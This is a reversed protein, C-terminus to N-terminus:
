PLWVARYYMAPGNTLPNPLVLNFGTTTITNTSVPTWTGSTLSSTKQIVYVTGTTGTIGFGGNATIMMKPNSVTYSASYSTVQNPLVAVAQNGPSNWGPIPNFLVTVNTSTVARIYNTASGYASDGSLKWGAGAARASPPGLQFELYGPSSASIAQNATITVVGGGPHNTGNDGVTAANTILNVVASDIARVASAYPTVGNYLTGVYVGAPYYYGNYQAYVPGGSNGPYSLFWNATYIQQDTVPDTALALPYPQPQTQYMEGPVISSNGFESGDVPYGVVMKLSNGTLWPNPSADSPLYGGYGGGAVPSLFYLAAVDYNRSQPSSQNVGLGGLLDNTRQSAYGSLVYWGRASQPEPTSVGTEQQFYWFIQSVYGLTQDNFVMHAATLVVNTQVAVGSGYGVDSQLQGNFGFPYDAVDGIENGPVPFPLLVGAPASSALVYNASIITPLGAYVQVEQSSPKSYNTVPEFEIFYFDPLLNTVTSGSARWSSEGLFRWGSGSLLNPGIDVTLTGVSGASGDALTPYYQNTISTTTGNVVAVTFNTQLVLYGPVSRFELTYNDQTLNSVVEGSNHWAQEWPFRWQGNAEPPLLTVMLAGNAGAASAITKYAGSYATFVGKRVTGNGDIVYINGNTDVVLSSPFTFLAANGAGDASGFDKATGGITTVVWNTGVLVIKRITGNDQDAVFLDGASDVAIGSPGNFEAYSGIGDGSGSNPGVITTTVWNTGVPTIKRIADDYFDAVYLNGNADAAIGRPSDFRAVTNTGDIDGSNFLGSLGAITTVQGSPTIKRISNNNGDTVFLNGNTGVTIGMPGNFRAATGTSDTTGSTGALGAITTVVGAPTLLRVTNNTYDTIYVNGSSDVTAGYPGNFRANSGSADTAGQNGALGAITSVSGASSIQRITDNYTDAVYFNGANDMAIGAPQNFRAAAGTGDVNGPSVVSGAFTRVVAASTIKRITNNQSDSVYLNGANDAAIGSPGNFRASNGTGDATGSVTPLGAFTSVVGAPTVKRITDNGGDCVYLNGTSDITVDNPYGFRAVSGAGDNTGYSGPTGAGPMGVFTSAAWNTGVPVLKRITDNNLDAVYLNGNTDMTMGDPTSFQAASGTGNNTGSIGPSGAITSVVWNTGVPTIKRIVSNGSDSVYVNGANDVKIGGAFFGGYTGGFHANTGTGDAYGGGAPDGYQDFAPGAGAITTVIWNTGVPTIKRIANNLNDVVYLNGTKDVAIRTPQAFRANRNMGDVYGASGPWGAITSVSGAPTIERITDNLYDVVYLNGNTDVAGGVPIAFQASSGVGDASGISSAGAFTTWTYASANNLQGLVSIGVPSSTASIGAATAVATFTYAGLMLNGVTLNYPPTQAMGVSAGNAFYQVNTVAGYGVTTTAALNVSAPSAFVAYNTPSTINVTPVAIVSITVPSSTASIGAASTAVATFAYTGPTLNTVTPYYPYVQAPGFSVGNMFYQLNISGGSKVSAFASLYSNIPYTFIAGNAPNQIIVTPAPPPGLQFGNIDGEATGNGNYTIALNGSGDSMASVFEVYDVGAIFTSSSANWTSTQSNGNVTFITKRGAAGSGNDAGNYLILDYTANAALGSLTITKASGGTFLYDEMLPDYPTSSFPTAGNFANADYGGGSTFTMKVPSSSGSAYVLSVGSGSNATIGNWVDSAAGLVAAGSMTPGVSPGGNASGNSDNNFDVDILQAQLLSAASFVPLAILLFGRRALSRRWSGLCTAAASLSAKSIVGM